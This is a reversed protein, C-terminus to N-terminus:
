SSHLSSLGVWLECVLLRSKLDGLPTRRNQSLRIESPVVELCKLFFSPFSLLLQTSTTLFFGYFFSHHDNCRLVVDFSCKNGSIQIFIFQFVVRGFLLRLIKINTLARTKNLFDPYNQKKLINQPENM